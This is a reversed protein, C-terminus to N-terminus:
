AEPADDGEADSLVSALSAMSATFGSFLVVITVLLTTSPFVWVTLPIMMAYLLATVVYWWVAYKQLFRVLPRRWKVSM